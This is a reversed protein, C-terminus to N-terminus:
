ILRKKLCLVLKERLHNMTMDRIDVGDVMIAGEDVDYFRPLLNILTSKGSGTGGIIATIEGPKSTFSLNKIAREQAGHDSHYSFSVNKFEVLGKASDLVIPEKPDVIEPDLDLVENIRTASAQARPLMIFMMTLMLVAFMIQSGYQIFAMMDGVQIAGNDIRIAGFWVLALTTINFFLLMLPHVLAMLKNVRIAVDTLDENSEKFREQEYDVKNFARIVRMGTLRERLVLNMHDVKKQMKQFLPIARTAILAITIGMLIVVIFIVSTLPVDKQLAMIISGVALFPARLAFRLMMVLVNQVQTIDNTSRTILSSTGFQDVENLSYSSVKKFVKERLNSALGVGVKSSIYSSMIIAVGGGVLAIALMIAGVRIIYGIDGLVVGEDVIDAMLTPLYLETLTQISILLLILAVMPAFPKLQKMIKLM